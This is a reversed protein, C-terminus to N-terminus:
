KWRELTPFYTQMATVAEERTYSNGNEDKFQDHFEACQQIMEEMTCDCTFAGEKYCYICYHPNLTGGAETGFDESTQLPM